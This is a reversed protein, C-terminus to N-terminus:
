YEAEDYTDYVPVDVGFIACLDEFDETEFM